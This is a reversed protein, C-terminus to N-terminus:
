QCQMASRNADLAHFPECREQKDRNQNRRCGARREDIPTIKVAGLRRRIRQFRRPLPVADRGRVRCGSCLSGRCLDRRRRIKTVLCPRRAADPRRLAGDWGELRISSEGKNECCGDRRRASSQGAETQAKRKEYVVSPTAFFAGELSERPCHDQLTEGSIQANQQTCHAEAYPSFTLERLRPSLNNITPTQTLESHKRLECFRGVIELM